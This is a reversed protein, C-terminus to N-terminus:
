RVVFHGLGEVARRALLLIGMTDLTRHILASAEDETKDLLEDGPGLIQVDAVGDV